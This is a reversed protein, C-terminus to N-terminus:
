LESKTKMKRQKKESTFITQAENTFVNQRFENPKLENLLSPGNPRTAKIIEQFREESIKYQISDSYETM